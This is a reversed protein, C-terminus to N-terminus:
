ASAETEVSPQTEISVLKHKKSTVISTLQEVLVNSEFRVYYKETTTTKSHGLASAVQKVSAGANLLLCGYTKRFLHTHLHKKIGCLTGVVKVYDNYKQNSIIPLHGDYKSWIRFADDLFICTYGVGTKIREKSVFYVGEQCKIDENSLNCMDVYSLGTSAQFLALDRVRDLRDELSVSRLKNLERKTLFEIKGDERHIKVGNFPHASIYGNLFAYGFVSKITTMKVAATNLEYRDKLLNYYTLIHCNKVCKIDTDKPVVEYFVEIANIYKNYVKLSIEKDIRGEQIKLWETFLGEVTMLKIGGTKLYEKILSISVPNGSNIIANIANNVSIIMSNLYNKLRNDKKMNKLRLFEDPSFRQFPLTIYERKGNITIAMEIPALGNKGVKSARCYFNVM